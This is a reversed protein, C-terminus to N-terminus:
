LGKLKHGSVLVLGFGLYIYAGYAALNRPDRVEEGDVYSSALESTDWAQFSAMHVFCTLDGRKVSPSQKEESTYFMSVPNDRGEM